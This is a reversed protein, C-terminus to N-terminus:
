QGPPSSPIQYEPQQVPITQTKGWKKEFYQPSSRALLDERLVYNDCVARDAKLIADMQLAKISEDGTIDSKNPVLYLDDQFTDFGDAFIFLNKGVMSFDGQVLRRTGDPNIVERTPRGRILYPKVLWTGLIPIKHPRRFWKNIIPFRDFPPFGRTFGVYEYETPGGARDFLPGFGWGLRKPPYRSSGSLWVSEFGPVHMKLCLEVREEWRKKTPSVQEKPFIKKAFYIIILIIGVIVAILIIWMYWPTEAPAQETPAQSVPTLPQLPEAM